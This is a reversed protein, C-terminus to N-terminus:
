SKAPKLGPDRRSLCRFNAIASGAGHGNTPGQLVYEVVVRRDAKFCYQGARSVAAERASEFLGHSYSETLFYSDPGTAKVEDTEACAAAIVSLAAAMLPKPAIM